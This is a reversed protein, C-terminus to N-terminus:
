NHLQELRRVRVLKKILKVPLPKEPTFRITGKSTKYDKLDAKCVAVPRAGPFFSCHGAFACYGVLWRGNLQIAPMQYSIGDEARPVVSRIIRRLRKLAAREVAPLTRFYDEVSAPAKRKM